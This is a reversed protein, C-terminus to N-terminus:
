HLHQHVARFDYIPPNVSRLSVPSTLPQGDVSGALPGSSGPVAAPGVAAPRDRQGVAGAISANAAAAGATVGPRAHPAAAMLGGFALGAVVAGAGIRAWRPPRRSSHSRADDPMRGAPPRERLVSVLAGDPGVALGAPPEPLQAHQPITRLNSLLSSSVTPAAAGRLALRAQTQAVVESACERCRALHELARRQAGPSLEEDVYAVIADLALHGGGWGHGVSSHGRLETM